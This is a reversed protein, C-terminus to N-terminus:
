PENGFVVKGSVLLTIRNWEFYLNSTSYSYDNRQNYDSWDNKAFGVSLDVSEGAKLEGAKESFGIELYRDATSKKNSLSVFNGYVNTAGKSFSDCWFTEAKNEERTYYYRIKIDSMKVSKTGSNIVKFMPYISDTSASANGNKYKLVVKTSEVKPPTSVPRPTSTKEITKQPTVMVTVTPTQKSKTPTPTIKPTVKPTPTVIPTPTM